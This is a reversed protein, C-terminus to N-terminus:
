NQQFPDIYYPHIGEGDYVMVQNRGAAKAAYLAEDVRSLLTELTDEPHWVAVGASATIGFAEGGASITLGAIAKRLREAVMSATKLPTYPLLVIVEEGGFRAIIQDKRCNARLLQGLRRLAEDGALHGHTDNISKFHDIDLLVVSFVRGQSEAYQLEHRAEEMFYRRNYLQTLDDTESLQRAVMRSEELQYLLSLFFYTCMPTVVAVVVGTVLYSHVPVPSDEFLSLAWRCFLALLMTLLTMLAISRRPGIRLLIRMREDSRGTLPPDSRASVMNLFLPTKM